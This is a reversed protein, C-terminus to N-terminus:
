PPLLNILSLVSSNYGAGIYNIARYMFHYENFVKVDFVDFSYYEDYVTQTINIVGITSFENMGATVNKIFLQYQIVDEM